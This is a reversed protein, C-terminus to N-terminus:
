NITTTWSIPGYWVSNEGNSAQIRGHYTTGSSLDSITTSFNGVFTDGLNNNFNQPESTLIVGIFGIVLLFFFGSNLNIIM